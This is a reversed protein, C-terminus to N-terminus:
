QFWEPSLLQRSQRTDFTLIEYTAPLTSAKFHHMTNSKTDTYFEYASARHNTSSLKRDLKLKCTYQM